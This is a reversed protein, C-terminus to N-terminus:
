NKRAISRFVAAVTAEDTRDFQSGLKVLQGVVAPISGMALVVVWDALGLPVVRLVDALPEVAVAMLQLTLAVAVGLLAYPNALARRIHLVPGSSRANGLHAIQAIALTMFAVTSARDPSFVLAWGFAGVAAVTILAAYALVSTVFSRSLIAERPDRPPRRLVDTEGPELALALAPFTDTVINLWLLQLPALPVPLAAVAAVLVVLVEAVNCTFLYFVFKRINDFIIRGEEVAAAISEFRDDQLVIAAADKAVDTGRIGMAVGVDAKALAAADNIGDGLMAVIEGRAQLSRVVILKHEPTVRSFASTRAIAADLAAGELRDIERGDMCVDDDSLVGVARGVSEATLRQDGTLMITRLGAARLSDITEKVGAAAPDALGVFGLFTLDRVAAESPVAAPGSAAALVRLGGLALRDNVEVLSRRNEDDLAIEGRATLVRSCKDLVIQPAGKVSVTMAGNMQDFGAMWKRASAFPISAVRVACQRPSSPDTPLRDAAALVAADVPDRLAGAEADRVTEGVQMRSALAASTLVQRVREDPQHVVDRPDWEAGAAWVLVVSMEGSTLTRTKDTCVVTTSGLTEVAPLRRVLVHRRAMRRMGIALAITAVAPLAEPVAAVALAIATEIVLVISAQQAAGLLAVFAAVALTGWVLRRGLADLRRELPTPEPEVAGALAGIKGVETGAGTAVVVGRGFGAVLTTGKFVMNIRDALNTREDLVADAIKSVPLSEGTLAAENVRLDASTVLRADAPVGHGASLEVLDGPV